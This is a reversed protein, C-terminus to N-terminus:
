KAAATFMTHSIHQALHSNAERMEHIRHQAVLARRVTLVLLM